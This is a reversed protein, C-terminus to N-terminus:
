TRMWRRYGAALVYSCGVLLGGAVAAAIILGRKPGSRRDPPRAEDVIQLAPGEKAEDLRAAELQRMLSELLAEQVKVERRARIYDVAAAPLLRVPLEGFGEGRGAPSLSEIRTLERRLAQLEAQARRVDPNQETATNRLVRLQVEREAILARLAAAGGLLAEAQKDLVIVGSAEQLRRLDDEAKVLNDKKGALQQEFFRRRQQADSVAIRDLLKSLEEVFGNALAAAYAPDEDDVEVAIVGSKRDVAARVVEPLRKRLEEFTKVDLRQRLQFRDDLSRRVSDSNLLAVYLEDPTKAAFGGPLGGLAGLAALAAVGGGPQNSNPPLVSIRATYVDPLLAAGIAAIVGAAAAAGVIQRWGGGLWALVDRLVPASTSFPVPDLAAVDSEASNPHAADVNRSDAMM